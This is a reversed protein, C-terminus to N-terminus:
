QHWAIAVLSNHEAFAVDYVDDGPSATQILITMPDTGFNHEMSVRVTHKLLVFRVTVLSIESIV